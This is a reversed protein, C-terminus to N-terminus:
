AHAEFIRHFEDQSAGFARLVTPDFVGPSEFLIARVAQAHSLAPRHPRARRMSDYTDVLAAIRAAAPIDEGALNDPYGNGDWREHHHRVIARAVALFELSQGYEKGISDLLDAGIRTHDEMKRREVETLPGAKLVIADPLAVKGIDHLPLCRDLNELFASDVLGTWGPESALKQALCVAYKPLRLLHGTTGGERLEEMRAMAFLLADEARRVDGSRANLSHELQKNVTLLDRALSDVRDQAVKRRLQHQIQAVVQPVAFPKQIFDDAGNQLAVAREDPGGTGSIVVIKLNPRPPHERLAQCVDYGHVSPLNLDLLVLDIPLANIQDVAAFGDEADHCICGMPEIISRLVAVIGPDDDVILVNAPAEPKNAESSDTALDLVASDWHASAPVAFRTLMQMVSRASEPRKDPNRDLMRALLDDLEPPAGAMVQHLRRPEEFQLRRLAAKIDDERPYPTHGSILWFLTAGLGYIDAAARVSTPDLSQEPAMFEISGLLCRPETRNSHFERALGFDVIKVQNHEDRLLNSPKLDRHILHHDHAQQLGSAAQRIWECGQAIPLLGHDYVYTELNSEMLEMVLYHLTQKGPEPAPVVGADYATVIHPHNLHALVRMEGHFRELVAPPFEDDCPLVKIAVKRKLLLHEGLFVVGVSGDGLQDLVRYNGLVLGHIQGNLIRQVQYPTLLGAAVMVRGLKEPTSFDSLREAHFQVFGNIAEKTLIQHRVLQQFFNLCAAPLHRSQGSWLQSMVQRVADAPAGLTRHVINRSDGRADARTTTAMIIGMLHGPCGPRLHHEMSDPPAGSRHGPLPETGRDNRHILEVM